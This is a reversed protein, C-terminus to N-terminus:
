PRPLRRPSSNQVTLYVQLFTSPPLCGKFFESLIRLPPPIRVWWWLMTKAYFNCRILQVCLFRLPSLLEDNLHLKQSLVTTVLSVAEVKILSPQNETFLSWRSRCIKHTYKNKKKKNRPLTHQGDTKSFTLVLEHPCNIWRICSVNLWRCNGWIIAISYWIHEKKAELM